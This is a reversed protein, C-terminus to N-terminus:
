WFEVIESSELRRQVPHANTVAHKFLNYLNYEFCLGKVLHYKIKM